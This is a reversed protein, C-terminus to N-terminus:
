RAPGLRDAFHVDGAPRREMQRDTVRSLKARGCELNMEKGLQIRFQQASRVALAPERQVGGDIM